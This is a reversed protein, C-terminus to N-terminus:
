AASPVGAGVRTVEKMFIGGPSGGKSEGRDEKSTCDTSQHTFFKFTPTPSSPRYSFIKMETINQYFFM